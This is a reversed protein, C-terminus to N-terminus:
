FVQVFEKFHYLQSLQRDMLKDEESKETTLQEALTPGLLCPVCKLLLSETFIIVDFFSFFIYFLIDKQSKLSSTFFTSGFFDIYIKWILLTNLRFRDLFVRSITSIM